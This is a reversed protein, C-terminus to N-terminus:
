QKQSSHGQESFGPGPYRWTNSPFRLLFRAGEGAKGTEAITIGTMSLIDRSIALGLGTHKGYGYLFIREKEGDSIGVGDDEFILLLEKGPRDETRIQVATLKEGHRISNDLLNSIVKVTLPDSFIEVHGIRTIIGIGEHPVDDIARNVMKELAQWIPQNSGIDQYERTFHLQRTIKEVLQICSSLHVECVPEARNEHMMELYASLATVLNSIDHRTMETLLSIKENAIRLAKESTKRSTIDRIILVIGAPDGGPDKVLSGAISTTKPPDHGLVAEVDTIIGRELVAARISKYDGPPIFSVIEGGSLSREETSLLEAAAANATIIKGDMDSLIMGDPMIRIIDPVATEPSLIFLGHTLIAYSIIVAFIVIGIFVLNPTYIGLAPLIL